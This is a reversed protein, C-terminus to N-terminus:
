LGKDLSISKLETLLTIFFLKASKSTFLKKHERYLFYYIKVKHHWDWWDEKNWLFLNYGFNYQVEPFFIRNVFITFTQTLTKKLTWNLRNLSLSGAEGADKTCGGGRNRGKTQELTAGPQHRLHHLDPVRRVAPWLDHLVGHALPDLRAPYFFLLIITWISKVYKLMWM